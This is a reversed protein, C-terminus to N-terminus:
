RTSRGVWYVRDIYKNIELCKDCSTNIEESVQRERRGVLAYTGGLLPRGTKGSDPGLVLTPVWGRYEGTLDTSHSPSKGSKGTSGTNYNSFKEQMKVPSM